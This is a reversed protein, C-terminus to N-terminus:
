DKRAVPPALARTDKAVVDCIYDVPLDNPDTGFPDEIELGAEEIGLLGFAIVISAPIALWGMYPILALPLTLLYLFLLHKIHV